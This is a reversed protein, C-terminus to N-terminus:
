FTFTIAVRIKNLTKVSRTFSGSVSFIPSTLTASVELLSNYESSIETNITKKTSQSGVLESHRTKLLLILETEGQLNNDIILKECLIIGNKIDYNENLKFDETIHCTEFYSEEMEKKTRVKAKVFKYSLNGEKDTSLIAQEDITVISEVKTAGLYYAVLRYLAIKEALFYKDAKSEHVYTNSKYPNLYFVSNEEPKGGILEFNKIFDEADYDISKIEIKPSLQPANEEFKYGLSKEDNQFLVVEPLNQSM